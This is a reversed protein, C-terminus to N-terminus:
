FTLSGLLDDMQKMEKEEAHQEQLAATHHHANKGLLMKMALQETALNPNNILKEFLDTRRGLKQAIAMHEVAWAKIKASTSKVAKDIAAKALKVTPALSGNIIEHIEGVAWGVLDISISKEGSKSIYLEM